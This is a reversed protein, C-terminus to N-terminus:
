VGEESLAPAMAGEEELEVRLPMGAKERFWAQDAPDGPAIAGAKLGELYPTVAEMADRQEAG